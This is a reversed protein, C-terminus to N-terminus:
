SPRINRSAFYEGLNNLTVVAFSKQKFTYVTVGDSIKDVKKILMKDTRCLRCVSAIYQRHSRPQTCGTPHRDAEQGERPGDGANGSSTSSPQDRGRLRVAASEPARDERPKGGAAPKGGGDQSYETNMMMMM